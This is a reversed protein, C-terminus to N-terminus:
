YICLKDLSDRAPIAIWGEKAAETEKDPPIAECLSMASARAVLAAIVADLIDASHCCLERHEAPITLWEGTRAEISGLLVALADAEADAGGATSLASNREVRKCFYVTPRTILRHREEYDAM